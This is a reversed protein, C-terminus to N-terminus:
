VFKVAGFEEVVKNRKLENLKNECFSNICVEEAPKSFDKLCEKGRAKMIKWEYEDECLIVPTHLRDHEVFDFSRLGFVEDIFRM